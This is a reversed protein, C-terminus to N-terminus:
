VEAVGEPDRVVQNFAFLFRIYNGWLDTDVMGWGSRKAEEVDVEVGEERRDLLLKVGLVASLGEGDDGGHGVGGDADGGAVFGLGEADLGAGLDAFGFLETGADDEDLAAVGVVGFVGM